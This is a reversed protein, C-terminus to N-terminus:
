KRTRILPTKFRECASKFDSDTIDSCQNYNSIGYIRTNTLAALQACQTQPEVFAVLDSSCDDSNFLAVSDPNGGSRLLQCAVDSNMDQVDYCKGQILAGWTQHAGKLSACNTNAGVNAVLEGSCNDSGYLQITNFTPPPPQYGCNYNITQALRICEPACSYRCDVQQAFSAQFVLTSFVALFIQIMITEGKFQSFRVM